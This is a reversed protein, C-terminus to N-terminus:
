KLTVDIEDGNKIADTVKQGAHAARTFNNNKWWAWVAAGITFASNVLDTVTQDDINIIPHGSAVLIQNILALALVITRAITGADIHHNNDM